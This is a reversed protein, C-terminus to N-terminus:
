PLHWTAAALVAHATYDNFRGSSPEAYHYFGYQLKLTLNKTRRSVLGAQLGHLGYKMGLPLGTASNSQQFDAASFSYGATLDTSQNLTFRGHTLVSWTDGRHPVVAESREHMAVTRADQYAVTTYWFLRRWPTLTANLSFVQADYDGARWRGGPSVDNADALSYPETTTEYDTAVLRHTFTATLWRAPRVTLRSEVEHSTRALAEIFTPYGAVDGPDGDAFGDDLSTARHFYRYHAGFKLWSRPSSDFGIRVDQSHSRADTDRDFTHDALVNERHGLCEEQWRADAFLTTFPLSTFRWGASGDVVAKDLESLFDAPNHLDLFSFEPVAIIDYFGAASGNQRTWEGQAGLTFTHGRWPGLLVNANAVHSERELLIQQSYSALHQIPYLLPAGTPDLVALNFDAEASLHSYLHGASAFLWDRFEREVRVTNAGQFARWGERATDTPRVEPTPTLLQYLNERQLDWSTWEGRFSDALRWGAREFEADFKLVHTREDISRWAPFINRADTAPDYPPLSGVPGWHLTAQSGNRYQYEYGLTLRPWDPLTLGLDIWARGTDLHLDRGLQYAAPDFAPVYGGTDAEFRRFQSFGLQVFGLESKELRGAALYDDTLLHGRVSLKTEPTLRETFDFSELGGRWSERLWQHERFKAENGEVTAFGVAPTFSFSFSTENTDAGWGAGQDIWARLLSIQEPSLPEGKGAPPMAMEPDLRAVFHILPSSASNGPHIDVGSNGGKLATERQDLRFRSKPKEPGHCRLCSQEFIPRIDRDFDVPRAAPPPLQSVDVASLVPLTLTFFLVSASLAIPWRM